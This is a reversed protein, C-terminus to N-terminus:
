DLISRMRCINNRSVPTCIYIVPKSFTQIELDNSKDFYNIMINNIM